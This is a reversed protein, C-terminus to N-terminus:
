GKSAMETCLEDVLAAVTREGLKSGDQKQLAITGSEAEAKGVVAFYNVRDNRANRIKAGLKDSAPDCSARIGATILQETIQTAYERQDDTIPLVRIQEPALWLPFKGAYHEILIGIFRELSGLIARHLIIPHKRSGDEAVYTADLREKSALQYDVQITGCQWERGLCDVLTFELKPGYFAGEGPSLETSLDALTTAAELAQEARDWDEDSGVRLEPRTSFKVKIHDADFGFDAYVSKLLDCFDAVESGIQDETCFIHADDQVFGRVRMIGHLAGSPEYRVCSGFESMRLPLERYSKLGQQFIRIHGPCNMPKLSFCRNVQKIEAEAGEAHGHTEGAHSRDVGRDQEYTIFMNDRYKAWHGSKEWLVQPQLNPTRVEIYGAALIRDRIYQEITRYLTWGKHHWYIQGPNDEELHFLQMEKGLRRHDRTKAEEMMTLYAQLGDKSAFCTGYVRTLQDANQDGHWYAGAVSLLKFHRCFKSSPVHPGACLDEFDKGPEGSVYFSLVQAGRELARQANDTKYKDGDTRALGEEANYDCRVFPKNASVLKAMEKEIAKLDGETLPESSALDYFFGNEIAPGYALKTGPKIHCIAEALLHACSHRLVSLAEPDDDRATLIRVAADTTVLRGLDCVEDDVTMAIAQKALGPSITRAIENGDVDHDFDLTNGDPLTLLPM